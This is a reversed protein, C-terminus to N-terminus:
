DEQHEGNQAEEIELKILTRKNRVILTPDQEIKNQRAERLRSIIDYIGSKEAIERCFLEYDSAVSLVFRLREDIDRYNAENELFAIREPMSEIDCTATLREIQDAFEIGYERLFADIVGPYYQSTKRLNTVAFSSLGCDEYLAQLNESPDKEDSLGLLYSPHINLAKCLMTLRDTDPKSQGRTYQSITQRQLVKGQEKKIKMSLKTQDTGREKMIESLRKAFIDNETLYAPTERITM